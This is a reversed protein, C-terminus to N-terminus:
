KEVKLGLEKKVMEAQQVLKKAHELPKLGTEIELTITNLGPNHNIVQKAINLLIKSTKDKGIEVQRDDFFGSGLEYVGTLHLQFVRGKTVDIISSILEDRSENILGERSLNNASIFVHAVDFLFGLNPNNKIREDSLISNLFYPKNMLGAGRLFALQEDNLLNKCDLAINFNVYPYSEFVVKKKNNLPLDRNITEYLSVLNSIIREVIEKNSLRPLRLGDIPIGELAHKELVWTSYHIHFGVVSADSDRVAEIIGKNEENNLIKLFDKDFLNLGIPKIPNHVSMKLGAQRFSKIEDFFNYGEVGTIFPCNALIQLAQKDSSLGKCWSVYLEVM